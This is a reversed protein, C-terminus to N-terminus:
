LVALGWFYVEPFSLHCNFLLSKFIYRKDFITIKKQCVSTCTILCGGQFVSKNPQQSSELNSGRLGIHDMPEAPQQTSFCRLGDHLFM